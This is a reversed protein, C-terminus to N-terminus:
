RYLSGINKSIKSQLGLYKSAVASSTGAGGMMTPYKASGWVDIDRNKSYDEWYNNWDQWRYFDGVGPFKAMEYRWRNKDSESFVSGLAANVAGSSKGSLDLNFPNVRRNYFELFWDDM